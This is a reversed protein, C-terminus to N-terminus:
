RVYSFITFKGGIPTHLLYGLLLRLESFGTIAYRRTTERFTSITFSTELDLNPELVAWQYRLMHCLLKVFHM